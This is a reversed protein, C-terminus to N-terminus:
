SLMNGEFPVMAALVLHFASTTGEVATCLRPARRCYLSLAYDVSVCVSGLQCLYPAVEIPGLSPSEKCARSLVTCESAPFAETANQQEGGRM